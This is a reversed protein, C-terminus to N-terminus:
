VKLNLARSLILKQVSRFKINLVKINTKKKFFPKKGKLKYEALSLFEALIFM